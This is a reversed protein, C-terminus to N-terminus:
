ERLAEPNEAPLWGSEPVLAMLNHFSDVSVQPAIVTVPFSMPPFTDPGGATAFLIAKKGRPVAVTIQRKRLLAPVYTPRSSLAFLAANRYVWQSATSPACIQRATKAFATERELTGATLVSKLKPVAM